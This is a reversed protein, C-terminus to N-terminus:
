PILYLHCPDSTWDPDASNPIACDEGAVAFAARGGSQLPLEVYGNGVRALGTRSLRRRAPLSFTTLDNAHGESAWRTASVRRGDTSVTAKGLGAPALEGNPQRLLKRSAHGPRITRVYEVSGHRVGRFTEFAVTPGAGIATDEVLTRPAGRWIVRSGRRSLAGLRVTSRRRGSVRETRAFSLLGNRLGPHGDSRRTGPLRRPAATGDAPLVYLGAAASLIVMSAGRRDTGLAVGETRKPIRVDLVRPSAGEDDRVVLVAHSVNAEGAVPVPRLWALADGYAAVDLPPLADLVV